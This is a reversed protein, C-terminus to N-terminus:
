KSASVGCSVSGRHGYLVSIIGEDVEREREEERRKEKESEGEKQTRAM